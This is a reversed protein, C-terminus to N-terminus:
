RYGIVYMYMADYQSHYSELDVYVQRDEGLPLWMNDSNLTSLYLYMYKSYEVGKIQTFVRIDDVKEPNANTFIKVYVLIETVNYQPVSSPLYFSQVGGRSM